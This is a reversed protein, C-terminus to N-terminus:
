PTELPPTGPDTLLTWGDPFGQLRECETPTLRRVLWTFNLSAQTAEPGALELEVEESPQPLSLAVGEATPRNATSPDPWDSNTGTAVAQTTPPATSSVAPSQTPATVADPQRTRPSQEQSSPPAEMSLPYASEGASLQTRGDTSSLPKQQNTKGIAKEQPSHGPLSPTPLPITTAVAERGESVSRLASELEPPLDRKRKAARRLIGIAAKKSLFYKQHVRAELIDSLTSEAADSRFELTNAIWLRQRWVMISAPLVRSSSRSTKVPTRLYSVLSTKSLSGFLGYTESWGSLSMGSVPVSALWDRVVELWPYTRVPSAEASSISGSLDMPIQESM